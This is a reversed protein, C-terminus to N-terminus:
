SSVSNNVQFLELGGGQQSLHKVGRGGGGRMLIAPIEYRVRGEWEKYTLIQESLM